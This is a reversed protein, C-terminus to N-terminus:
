RPCRGNTVRPEAGISEPIVACVYEDGFFDENLEIRWQVREWDGADADLVSTGDALVLSADDDDFGEQLYAVRLVDPDRVDSGLFAAERQAEDVFDRADDRLSARTIDDGFVGVVLLVGTIALVTLGIGVYGLILGARALGTGGQAGYSRRIQSLAVHGCVVAVIGGIIPCIVFQVIGAVLSVVATPNNPRPASWSTPGSPPPGWAPPPASPPPPPVVPPAGPTSGPRNWADSPSGGPTTDSM